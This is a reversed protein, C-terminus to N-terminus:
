NSLQESKAWEENAQQQRRNQQNPSDPQNRRNQQGDNGSHSPNENSQRSTPQHLGSSSNASVSRGQDSASPNLESLARDAKLGLKDLNATLESLDQRLSAALKPDSSRVSVQVQGQHEALRVNISEGSDGEFKLHVERVPPKTTDTGDDSSLIPRSPSNTSGSPSSNDVAPNTSALSFVNATGGSIASEFLSPLPTSSAQGEGAPSTSQKAAPEPTATESGDVAGTSHRRERNSNDIGNGNLSFEGPRPAPRATGEQGGGVSQAPSSKVQEDRLNLSFALFSDRSPNLDATSALGGAGTPAGSTMQSTALGHPDQADIGAEDIESNDRSAVLAPTMLPPKSLAMTAVRTPIRDTSITPTSGLSVAQTWGALGANQASSIQTLSGRSDSLYVSMNSDTAPQHLGGAFSVTRQPQTTSQDQVTDKATTLSRPDGNVDCKKIGAGSRNPGAMISALVTSESGSTLQGWLALSELTDGSGARFVKGLALSAELDGGPANSSAALEQSSSTHTGRISGTLSTLPLHKASTDPGAKANEISLNSQVAAWHASEGSQSPQDQKPILSPFDFPEGSGSTNRVSGNISTVLSSQISLASVRHNNASKCGSRHAWKNM